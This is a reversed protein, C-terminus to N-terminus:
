FPSVITEKEWGEAEEGRRDRYNGTGSIAKGTTTAKTIPHMTAGGTSNEGREVV